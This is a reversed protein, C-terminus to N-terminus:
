CGPGSATRRPAPPRCSGRSGAIPRTVVSLGRSTRLRTGTGPRQRAESSSPSAFNQSHGSTRVTVQPPTPGHPAPEHRYRHSGHRPAAVLSSPRPRGPGPPPAPPPGLAGLGRTPALALALSAAVTWDDGVIFDVWFAGVARLWRLVIM